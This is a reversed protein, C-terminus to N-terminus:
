FLTSLEWEGIADHRGFTFRHILVVWLLSTGCKQPAVAEDAIDGPEDALHFLCPEGQLEDRLM